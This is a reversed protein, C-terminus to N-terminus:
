FPTRDLKRQQIRILSFVILSFLTGIGPIIILNLLNTPNENIPTMQILTSQDPIIPLNEIEPPSLLSMGESPVNKGERESQSVPDVQTNNVNVLANKVDIANNAIMRTEGAVIGIAQPIDRQSQVYNNGECILQASGGGDLMMVKAAGFARLVSAADVQRAYLTSFILVLENITDGDRDAVGVFTRGTYAKIRKKADETLGAIINPATSNYLGESTLQNIDAHDSWLELMLKQGPFESIGYGDSIVKGGKKIPFALRTDQSSNLKFFQGTVVCVSKKFQTRLQSWFEELSIRTFYPNDGGYVGKGEEISSVPGHMPLVQAGQSIDILVVFDPSGGTYNKRYLEVGTDSVIQTFGEPINPTEPKAFASSTPLFALFIFLVFYCNKNM